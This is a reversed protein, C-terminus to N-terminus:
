LPPLVAGGSVAQGPIPGNQHQPTRAASGDGAEPYEKWPGLHQLLHLPSPPLAINRLVM